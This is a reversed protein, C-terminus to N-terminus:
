KTAGARETCERAYEAGYKATLEDKILQNVSINQEYAKRRLMERFGYALHFNIQVPVDFPDLITTRKPM